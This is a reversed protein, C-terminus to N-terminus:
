RVKVTQLFKNSNNIKKFEKFKDFVDFRQIEHMNKFIHM